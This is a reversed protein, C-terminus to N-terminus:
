SLSSVARRAASASSGCSWSPSSWGRTASSSSRCACRRSRPGGWWLGAAALAKTFRFELPLHGTLLLRYGDSGMQLEEFGCRDPPPLVGLMWHRVVFAAALVAITALLAVLEPRRWSWERWTSRGAVVFWAAAAALCWLQAPLSRGTVGWTNATYVFAIASVIAASAVLLTEMGFRM